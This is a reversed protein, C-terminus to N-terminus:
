KFGGGNRLDVGSASLLHQVPKIYGRGNRYSKYNPDGNVKAMAIILAQALSRFATKVVVNSWKITSM